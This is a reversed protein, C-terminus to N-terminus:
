LLSLSLPITSERTFPARVRVETITLARLEVEVCMDCYKSTMLPEMPTCKLLFVIILM